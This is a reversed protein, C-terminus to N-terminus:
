RNRVERSAIALAIEALTHIFQSMMLREVEGLNEDQTDALTYADRISTLAIMNSEPTKKSPVHNM